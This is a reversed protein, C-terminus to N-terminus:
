FKHFLRTIKGIGAHLDSADPCEDRVAAVLEGLKAEARHELVMVFWLVALMTLMSIM